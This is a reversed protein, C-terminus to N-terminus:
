SQPTAAPLPVIVQSLPPPAQDGSWITRGAQTMVVHVPDTASFQITLDGAPGSARSQALNLHNADELCVLVGGSAQTPTFESEAVHNYSDTATLHITASPAATPTAASAVGAGAGTVAAATLVVAISKALTNM